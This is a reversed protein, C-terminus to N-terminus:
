AHALKSHQEEKTSERSGAGSASNRSAREAQLLMRKRRVGWRYGGLGGGTRTVRHCPILVAVPNTACARAVARAARPQGIASAVEAYSRTVGLPIARLVEWVQRQFATCRLDFPLDKPPEQGDIAQVVARVWWKLDSNAPEITAAPFERGLALALEDDSSGFRVACIGRHTAAVLVRGLACEATAYRIHMGIGGRGYTAPTMGLDGNAREYLRSSSGYGADYIAGTVDGGNKLQSKVRQIRRSDAYQRPSIGLARKFARQLHFPSYGSVRALEALSLKQDLNSDIYRCISDIVDAV